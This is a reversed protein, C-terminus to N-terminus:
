PALIRYCDDSVPQAERGTCFPWDRWDRSQVDRRYKEFHRRRFLEPKRWITQPMGPWPNRIVLSGVHGSGAEVVDGEDDYVAASVGLVAPGSRGERVSQRGPPPSFVPGAVRDSWTQTVVARGKGVVTHCWRLLDSDSEADLLGIRALEFEYSDPETAGTRRLLALTDGDAHLSTVGHREAIQWPRGANPYTLSGEYLVSTSGLSLPGYVVTCHGALRGIDATSWHTDPVDIDLHYRCTGAAYALYGGTSYQYGGFDEEDADYLLFLPAEAPMAVPAVTKGHYGKVLDNCFFDRGTVMQTNSSYRRPWRRWVLVKDVHHGRQRALRVAEDTAAKHDTLEGARHMGDMTVVVNSGSDVLMDAIARTDRGPGVVCHIAGLRACALMSVPMEPVTPLHLMVRDGVTVGCFDRLLAAFENVKRYLVQYTMARPGDVEPEPVWIFAAKNRDNALHRDVCNYSANLRGGAFWTWFPPRPAATDLVTEWHTDWSLIDAYHEFCQPFHEETFQGVIEPDRGNARAAPSMWPHTPADRSLGMMM